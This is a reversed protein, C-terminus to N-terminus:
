EEVPEDEEVEVPQREADSTQDCKMVCLRHRQECNKGGRVQCQHAVKNCGCPDNPGQANAVTSGGFMAASLGALVLLSSVFRCKKLM